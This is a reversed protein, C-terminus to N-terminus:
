KAEAWNKGIGAEAEVPLDTIYRKAAAEMTATLTKAVADAQSSIVELVIEDHVCNVIRADSGELAQPLEGLALKLIDAGLGQVPTNAGITLKRLEPRIWRRRGSVTRIYPSNRIRESIESHWQAIGAYAEFYRERFLTAEELSMEVGYGTAAYNKLGGAGQGYILGFNVAKAAQRQAKSVDAIDIENILAATLRHLDEGNQYAKIMRRDGTTQAAIRLEIQSYDAVVFVCGDDPIVASRFDAGRPLNQINPSTSSVRGSDAGLQRFHSYARGTLPHRHKLYKEGDRAATVLNKWNLYIEVLETDAHLKLEKRDLSEVEVGARQIVPLLQQQSHPNFAISGFLDRGLPPKGNVVLAEDLAEVFSELADDRQRSVQEINATVKGWDFRLGYREMEAFAPIAGMEIAAAEVLGAKVLKPILAERLDILIAADRAAYEYQRASLSKRGWNGAQEDKPIYEGLYRECLAALNAPHRHGCTYLQAALMTDFIPARFRVSNHELWKAEFVANQAVKKRGDFLDTLAGCIGDMGGVADVDIILARDGTVALQVLRIRGDIPNLATTELDVAIVPYAKLGEIAALVDSLNTAVTYAVKRPPLLKKTTKTSDDTTSILELQNTM